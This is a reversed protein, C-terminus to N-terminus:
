EGRYAPNSEFFGLGKLFGAKYAERNVGAQGAFFNDTSAMMRELFKMAFAKAHEHGLDSFDGGQMAKTIADIKGGSYAYWSAIYGSYASIAGGQLKKGVAGPVKAALGPLGGVAGHLGDSTVATIHGTKRNLLLWAKSKSQGFAVAGLPVFAQMNPNDTLSKRIFRVTRPDSIKALDRTMTEPEVWVFQKKRPKPTLRIEKLKEIDQLIRFDLTESWTQYDPHSVTVKFVGFPEKIIPLVFDGTPWSKAEVRAGEVRIAANRVSHSTAADVMKGSVSAQLLSFNHMIIPLEPDDLILMRNFGDVYPTEPDNMREIDKWKQKGKKESVPRGGIFLIDVTKREQNIYITYKSKEILYYRIPKTPKDNRLYAVLDTYGQEKLERYAKLSLALPNSGKNIANQSHWFSVGKGDQYTSLPVNLSYKDHIAKEEVDDWYDVIEYKYSGDKRIQQIQIEFSVVNKEAGYRYSFARVHPSKILAPSHGFEIGPQYNFGADTASGLLSEIEFAFESFQAPVVKGSQIINWPLETIEKRRKELTESLKISSTNGEKLRTIILELGEGASLTLVSGPHTDRFFGRLTLEYDSLRQESSPAIEGLHALVVDIGSVGRRGTSEMMVRAELDAEIASRALAFPLRKEKKADILIDNQRLDLAYAKTDDGKMYVSGILVRPVAYWADLQFHSKLDTLTKDSQYWHALALQYAASAEPSRKFDAAVLKTQQDFVVQDIECPALVIVHESRANDGSEPPVLERWVTVPKEKGFNFTLQISLGDASAYSGQWLTKGSRGIIMAKSESVSVRLPARLFDAVNAKFEQKNEAGSFRISFDTKQKIPSWDEKAEGKIGIREGSEILRVGFKKKKGIVESELDAEALLAQLLIARDQQNGAKGWLTGLAGRPHGAYDEASVEDRVYAIIKERDFELEAAKVRLYSFEEVSGSKTCWKLMAFVALAIIGLVIWGKKSGKKRTQGDSSSEHIESANRTM